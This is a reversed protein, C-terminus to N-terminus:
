YVLDITYGGIPTKPAAISLSISVTADPAISLHKGAGPIHDKPNFIRQALRQENYDFLTLKINPLRQKFPARNNIVAKFTITNDSNPIFSGQLVEFEDLNQYDAIQCGIGKCLKELYPRFTVNQSLKSGEFYIFQGLLLLTGIVFGAFWNIDTSKTEVEWPLREPTPAPPTTDNTATNLGFKRLLGSMDLSFSTSEAKKRPSPKPNTEPKPIYETKAETLLPTPKKDLLTTPKFKKNCVSCFVQAKKGRLQKTSVPYTRRCEPCQTFM